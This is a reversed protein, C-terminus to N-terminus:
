SSLARAICAVGGIIDEDEAAFSIRSHDELGYKKGSSIAVGFENKLYEPDPLGPLFYFFGGEPKSIDEFQPIKTLQEHMLDRKRQMEAQVWKLYEPSKLMRAAGYQAATFVGGTAERIDLLGDYFREPAMLWGVQYNAGQKSTSDIVITNDRLYPAISAHKVGDYTAGAFVNDEVAIDDEAFVEALQEMVGEPIVKGTPNAPSNILFINPGDTEQFLDYIRDVDPVGDILPYRGVDSVGSTRAIKRYDYGVEPTWLKPKRQESEDYLGNFRSLVVRLAGSSGNTVLVHESDYTMNYDVEFKEAAAERLALLGKGSTQLVDRDLIAEATAIKILSPETFPLYGSTLEIPKRAGTLAERSVHSGFHSSGETRAM